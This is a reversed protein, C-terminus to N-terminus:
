EMNVIMVLGDNKAVSLKKGSAAKKREPQNGGSIVEVEADAVDLAELVDKVAIVLPADAANVAAVYWVDANRRAIVATEGPCGAVYRTEDWVTPVEKLFDLCVKPADTLNNPTIAFNQVPNQYLVSIAM